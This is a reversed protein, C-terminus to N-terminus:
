PLPMLGKPDKRSSSSLWTAIKQLFLWVDDDEFQAHSRNAPAEGSRKLVPILRTPGHGTINEDTSTNAMKWQSNAILVCHMM